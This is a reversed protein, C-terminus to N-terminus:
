DVDRVTLGFLRKVTHHYMRGIVIRHL